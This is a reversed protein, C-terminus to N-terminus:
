TTEKRMALATCLLAAMILLVSSELFLYDLTGATPGTARLLGLDEVFIHYLLPLAFILILPITTPIRGFVTLTYFLAVGLYLVLCLTRHLPSFTEAKLAFFVCGLVVSVATLRLKRTTPRFCLVCFLACAALPLCVLVIIQYGSLEAISHMFVYYYIRVLAAAGMLVLSLRVLGSHERTSYVTRMNEGTKEIIQKNDTYCVSTGMRLAACPFRFPNTRLM